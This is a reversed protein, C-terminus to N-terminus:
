RRKSKECPVWTFSRSIPRMSSRTLSCTCASVGTTGFSIFRSSARLVPAIASKPSFYPSRTRTILIPSKEVSSHPPVCRPRVPSIPRSLTVVSPATAEPTRRTSATAPGAASSLTARVSDASRSAASM